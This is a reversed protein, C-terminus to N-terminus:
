LNTRTLTIQNVNKQVCPWKMSHTRSVGIRSTMKTVRVSFEDATVFLHCGLNESIYAGGSIAAPNCKWTHFSVFDECVM